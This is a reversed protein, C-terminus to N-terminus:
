TCAGECCPVALLLAVLPGVGLVEAVGLSDKPAEVVCAGLPLSVVVTM